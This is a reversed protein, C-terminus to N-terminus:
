QWKTEQGIYMEWERRCQELDPIGFYRVRDMGHEARKRVEPNIGPCVKKLERGFTRDDPIWSRIQRDKAYRKFAGRMRDKEVLEPWASGFDSGTLKEDFLCTLWWAAVPGLSEIKQDLLATTKPASNVDVQSLDFNQLYHLLLRNGGEEDIGKRMRIFFKGDQKRGDGVDFAAFRREDQSAPVLWEENGIIILRTCNDVAYPEQGKREIVHTQGTIIDKLTGEAQKDGSWFAEDLTFLLLREVHGNFNGVLYRRNSTLLYHSGVLNGVRDVLANKGVGKGGRFVLAVLPKEYPRQIMHAFYGMLWTYLKKDGKCVNLLAHEKFLEVAARASDSVDDSATCSFGQWINYFRPPATKGPMFCIGDYSRRREDKIWLRTLQYFKADDFTIKKAALKDHFAPISLHELLPSDKPDKTEWLIHAGGGAIVFAYEKNLEDFPHLIKNELQNEADDLKDDIDDIESPVLPSFESQASAVGASQQAYRYANSVKESLEDYDWPPQCRGNWYTDICHLANTETLGFDRVKCCVDYTTQDGGEGQIALPAFQKLYEITRDSAARQDIDSLDTERKGKPKPPAKCIDIVWAPADVLHLETTAEYRKGNIDSGAGVVYGGRARIDIGRALVNSGQKCPESVKYFLHRGGTPTKQEYTPPLEKGELELKLIESDGDKGKKNDIDVVLLDNTAIGINFPQPLEMVPDTWFEKIKDPDTTALETFCEIHPLKGNPGLPFVRFGLSALHLAHELFTM